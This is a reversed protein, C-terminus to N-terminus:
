KVGQGGEAEHSSEQDETLEEKLSGAEGVKEVKVLVAKDQKRFQFKM